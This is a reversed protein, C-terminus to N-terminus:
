GMSLHIHSSSGELSASKEECKLSTFQITLYQNIALNLLLQGKDMLLIYKM